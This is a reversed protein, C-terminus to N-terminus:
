PLREREENYRDMAFRVDAKFAEAINARRKWLDVEKVLEEVRQKLADDARSTRVTQIEFAASASLGCQRCPRDDMFDNLVDSGHSNCGPCTMKDGM